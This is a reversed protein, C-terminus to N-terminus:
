ISFASKNTINKQDKKDDAVQKCQLNYLKISDM